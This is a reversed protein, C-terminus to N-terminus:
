ATGEVEQLVGETEPLWLTMEMERYMEIAASLEARAQETQGMQSYLTGLGRHCYAQLPRMGLENALALAQQYHTEPLESSGHRTAVEGLTWLALAEVGRMSRERCSDLSRTLLTGIDRHRGTRLYIEALYLYVIADVSHLREVAQELLPIAEEQRGSMAYAYGLRGAEGSYWAVMSHANMLAMSRECWPIADQFKGQRLLVFSVTQHAQCLSAPQQLANAIQLGEEAIAFARKFEGLEALCRALWSRTAVAPYLARDWRQYILDNPLWAVAKALVSSGRRYDGMTHCIMGVDLAMPVLRTVDGTTEAVALGREALELAQVNNGLRWLANAVSTLARALLYPEGLKEALRLAAENCALQQQHDGAVYYSAARSLHIEIGQALMDRDEPLHALAEIAHDFYGGALEYASRNAARIGARNAYRLVRDWMEGQLAHRTLQEVQEDLWGGADGELAEVIRTHLIRRRQQLLSSYAVEHTLAHKFTYVREPFLSTEYLFEAAQLRTLALHLMEEPLEIIGQLLSLPVDTGIVAATQLLQKEDDPLRDIRAALIAQVTDPVLISPLQSVLRHGGPEGALAGTEVLTRVTEELFFPNGQTREILLAKLGDLSPDNGLLAALFAEVSGVQLPGLRLQTYYTKNGWSHQYEPRYNVLLLLRSTPLSEVLSDLLAQTESDIWHLDEFILLLPQVQSERLLIRKLGDLTRQRRQPPDLQLFPSDEPLVDLLSLLAPITEQLAEDLTLIQGTV